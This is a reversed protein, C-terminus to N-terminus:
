ARARLWREVDHIGYLLRDSRPDASIPAREALLARALRNADALAADTAATEVRILGHMLDRGEWPWLRLGWAHVPAIRRSQPTFASSRHGVPLTLYCELEDGEFPLTAHSKVVGLMRGDRVWDPSSTLTGDVILWCAPDEDRFLGAVTIELRTREADVQARARELDGIPHPPEDEALLVRDTGEPLEGLAAIAAARGVVLHRERSVAGHPVREVRRRVGAAIRAGLVPQTGVYGLLETHQVGDLFGLPATWPEAPGPNIARLPAELVRAPRIVPDTRGQLAPGPM